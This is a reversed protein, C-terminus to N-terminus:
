EPISELRMGLKKREENLAQIYLTRRKYPIEDFTDSYYIIREKREAVTKLKPLECVFYKGPTPWSKNVGLAVSNKHKPFDGFSPKFIYVKGEPYGRHLVFWRRTRPLEFEGNKDTLTEQGDELISMAGAFSYSTFYYAALVVAGQIPEKTDTDIVKGKFPALSRYPIPLPFFVGGGGIIFYLGTMSIMMILSLTTIVILWWVFRPRKNKKKM